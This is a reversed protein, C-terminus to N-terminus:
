VAEDVTITLGRSGARVRDEMDVDLETVTAPRVRPKGSAQSQREFAFWWERARQDHWRRGEPLVALAQGLAAASAPRDSPEKALCQQILRDLARPVPSPARESPAPPPASRHKLCIEAVSEGEFVHEGTLLFYGVAGLAYLDHAPGVTAPALFSEPSMYLPTGRLTRAETECPAADLEKALGFDVVKAVDAIGGRECLIINSPKIDRHILGREHAERLAGCVQRLVHIVREAPQPGDDEVLNSLDVGDLFEMAYYFRGGPSRGYDYIEVVNPHTLESTLQVEREFLEQAARTRRDHRLLKIATPRRLMAHRARYVTGNGGEGLKADLFYQGLRQARRVQARLGYLAASGVTSLAVAVGGFVLAGGFLALRPTNDVDVVLAAVAILAVGIASLVLTRRGSSPLILARALVIYGVWIFASYVNADRDDSLVASATLFASSVVVAAVDVGLLYRWSRVGGRLLTWLVVITLLLGAVAFGNVIDVAEPVTQPYLYYIANIIGLLAAFSGALTGCLLSLRRQFFRREDDAAPSHQEPATLPSSMPAPPM